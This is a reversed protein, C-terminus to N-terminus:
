RHRDLWAQRAIAKRGEQKTLNLSLQKMERADERIWVARMVGTYSHNRSGSAFRALRKVGLKVTSDVLGLM